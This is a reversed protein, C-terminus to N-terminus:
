WQAMGARVGGRLQTKRGTGHAKLQARKGNGISGCVDTQRAFCRAKLLTLPLPTPPLAIPSLTPAYVLAACARRM